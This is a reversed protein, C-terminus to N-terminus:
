CLWFLDFDSNACGHFEPLCQSAEPLNNESFHLLLVERIGVITETLSREPVTEIHNVCVKMSEPQIASEILVFLQLPKESM